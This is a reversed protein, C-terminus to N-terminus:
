MMRNGHKPVTCEHRIWETKLNRQHTSERQSLNEAVLIKVLAKWELFCVLVEMKTNCLTSGCMAHKTMLLLSSISPEVWCNGCLVCCQPGSEESNIDACTPIQSRVGICAECFKPENSPNCSTLVTSWRMESTGLHGFKNIGYYNNEKCKSKLLM